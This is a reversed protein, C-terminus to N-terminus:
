TMRFAGEWYDLRSNACRRATKPDVVLVDRGDHEFVRDTPGKSDLKMVWHRGALVLRICREEPVDAAELEAKLRAAALNTISRM